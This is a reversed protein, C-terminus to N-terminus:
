QVAWHGPWWIWAAGDWAWFGPVWVTAPSHVFHGGRHPHNHHPPAVHQPVGRYVGWSRWPDRSQPFVSPAPTSFGSHRGDTADASTAGLAVLVFGSLITAVRLVRRM